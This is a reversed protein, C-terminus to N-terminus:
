MIGAVLSFRLCDIGRNLVSEVSEMGNKDYNNTYVSTALSKLFDFSGVKPIFADVLIIVKGLAYAYGIEASTGVHRCAEADWHEIFAFVIDAQRLLVLDRPVYKDAGDDALGRIPTLFEVHKEEIAEQFQYKVKGRWDTHLNGALYVKIM